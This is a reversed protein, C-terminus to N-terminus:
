DNYDNEFYNDEYYESHFDPDFYEQLYEDYKESKNISPHGFHYLESAQEYLLHCIYDKFTEEKDEPAGKYTREFVSEYFGFYKAKGNPYEESGKYYKYMSYDSDAM